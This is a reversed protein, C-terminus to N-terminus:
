DDNGEYWEATVILMGNRPEVDIVGVSELLMLTDMGSTRHEFDTLAYGGASQLCDIIYDYDEECLVSIIDEAHEDTVAVGKYVM